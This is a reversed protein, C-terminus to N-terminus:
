ASPWRITVTSAADPHRELWSRAFPCYPVLTEGVAAASALAAEVLRGGIGRGSLEEPVATHLLELRNGIRRYVLRADVGDETLVFRDEDTEDVVQSM